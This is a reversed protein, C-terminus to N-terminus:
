HVTPDQLPEVGQHGGDPEHVRRGEAPVGMEYKAPGDGYREASAEYKAPGEGERGTPAEHIQADHPLEAKEWTPTVPTGGHTKR